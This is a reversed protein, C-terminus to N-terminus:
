LGLNKQLGAPVNLHVEQPLLHYKIGLDEFIKKLELLLESRRSTKEGMNHYNMTHLVFLAMQMKNMDEIEKVVLMHTCHWHEPKSEIFTKIRERLAKISDMSTSVGVSFEVSDNMDPSRYFNSIPKTALVSNPYYIKENDFRLFVTTLINMEEVVMQVGDIVCRDGVDFPHMVFVFIIAEFITKCTNGFMFVVLLTQSSIVLLLKTTAVGILLLWIVIIIAIVIGSALKNLQKVATKTDSLSHALSKRELYVKVVWNKLIPKKIKRTEVAGEFQPLVSEVEEKSLFRLLDEEDIHKRGPKAVNRFIQYAAAKAEWESTIEMDKQENRDEYVSEDLTNSITWLGSSTIINVLRKMTLASVKEQKMKQLKAVDITEQEEGGKGKKTSRFSLQVASRSSTTAGINEAMEMLPPGSLTQLIYQHFLSEQIRDFFTNVHFSSALIKMLLTKVLWLIAGILVTVLTRSVYDLFKRTKRSLEVGRDFLLLWTLLILGSWIFVQVSRKLGYVFYLVKKKLVFNMEIFFVLVTILWETVLRGCFIVMVMMCWKWVELGWIVFNQLRHVTLSAVLLGTASFLAVWEFLVWFKLRQRWKQQPPVYKRMIEEEDEDVPTMPTRPTGVAKPTTTPPKYPSSPQRNNVTSDNSDDLAIPPSYDEVFRSKPKSFATRLLSRRRIASEPPAKPPKSATTAFKGNETPPSSIPTSVHVNSKLHDFQSFEATSSNSEKALRNSPSGKVKSFSSSGEGASRDKKKIGEESQIVLVVEGKDGAAQTNLPPDMVFDSDSVTIVRQGDPQRRTTITSSCSPVRSPWDIRAPVFTAAAAASVLTTAILSNRVAFRGGKSKLGGRDM